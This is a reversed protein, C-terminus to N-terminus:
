RPPRPPISGGSCKESARSFLFPFPYKSLFFRMRKTGAFAWTGRVEPVVVVDHGSMAVPLAKRQVPTPVKYGLNLVGRLLEKPLGLSQFSSKM